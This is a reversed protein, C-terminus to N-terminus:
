RAVSSAPRRSLQRGVVHPLLAPSFRSAMVRGTHDILFSDGARGELSQELWPVVGSEFYLDTANSGVERLANAWADRHNGICVTVISANRKLEPCQSAVTKFGM